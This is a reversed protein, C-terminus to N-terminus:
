SRAAVPEHEACDVRLERDAMPADVLACHHPQASDPHADPRFFRCTACMRAVTIVGSRQLRGILTVLVRLTQEKDDAPLADLLTRTRQQWTSVAAATAEGRGTLAVGARRGGEQREVLGKRRLVAVADSITPHTVDLEAALAGIRRRAPPDSALRLLVQLQTPSLGHEKAADWLQVRLAQGVRELAAVLKTDLDHPDGPAVTLQDDPLRGNV